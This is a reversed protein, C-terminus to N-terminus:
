SEDESSDIDCPRLGHTFRRVPEVFDSRHQPLILEDTKSYAGHEIRMHNVRKWKRKTGQMFVIWIGIKGKRIYKTKRTAFQINSPAYPLESLKAKSAERNNRQETATAWRLNSLRNDSRNNNIHDVSLGTVDSSLVSTDFETLVLRHLLM